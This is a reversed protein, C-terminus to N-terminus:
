GTIPARSHPTRTRRFAMGSLGFGLIMMAWSDPEPVPVAAVDVWTAFGRDLGRPSWVMARSDYAFAEGGAYNLFVSDAETSFDGDGDTGLLWGVRATPSSGYLMLGYQTGAVVNLNLHAVDLLSVALADTTTVILSGMNPVATTLSSPSQAFFSFYIPQRNGAVLNFGVQALKGTLGATFYQIQHTASSAGIGTALPTGPMTALNNQDIMIAAQAIEVSSFAISSAILATAFVRYKM